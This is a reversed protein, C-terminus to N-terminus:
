AQGVVSRVVDSNRRLTNVLVQEGEPTALFDGVMGPDMVNIIRQNLQQPQSQQDSGSNPDGKRYQQPTQVAVREGPTARFAVMQSDAGGTGGPVTFEGGTMFGTPQSRIQAVNAMGAAVAAAAAAAGLAPGVYPIGALSAYAATAAQYTNIIAQTIAAAKGIAAIKGNESKQLQSLQGFFNNATQLKLEETQAWVKARMGAATQESILDAQRMMDIQKYMQDFRELQADMAEQTGAFLEQNQSMLANTADGKTFGSSPDNLLNTIAKLQEVYQQRQDVSGALLQDQIETMRNLDQLATLKSRLAETEEKSLLVGDSKLQETAQLVQAEVERARASMGLLATQQDLERNLKGLPDLIDQYHAKLLELYRQEQEANILGKDKAKNLIDQAKSMELTAGELPAIQNLVGMLENRLKEMAKAQRALEAASPGTKTLNPGHETNVSGQVLKQRDQIDRAGKDWIQSLKTFMDATTNIASNAMDDSSQVWTDKVDVATAKVIEFAGKFDGQLAAVVAAVVGGIVKGVTKFALVVTGLLLTGVAKLVGYLVVLTSSLLKSTDSLEDTPDLTGTIAHTFSVLEPTASKLFEAVSQLASGLLSSSGTATDLAGVTVLLQNKLAIFGESITPVTKGFKEDLEAGASKFADIITTASIKGDQGMQRLEGRTVGLSKAIVDAVAPLNELVSRLEDGQLRGSAMGQALQIIGASAEESTAGSIKIAKNLKETFQLIDSQSVGLEKASVAIRSYLEVNSELSSRTRGSINVLEQMVANLNAQGDTTLRLRNNMTTWTDVMQRVENLVAGGVAAAIAGKLLGLGKRATEASTGISEIDRRVVRSGDERVVINIVETTM